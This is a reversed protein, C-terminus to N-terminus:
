GCGDVVYKGPEQGTVAGQGELLPQAVPAAARSSSGIMVPDLVFASNKRFSLL